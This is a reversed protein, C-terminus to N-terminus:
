LKMIANRFYDTERVLSVRLFPVGESATSRFFSKGAAVNVGLELWNKRIQDSSLDTNKFYVCAFIGAEPTNVTWKEDTNSRLFDLNEQCIKRVDLFYTLLQPANIIRSFVEVARLATYTDPQIVALAEDVEKALRENSSIIFGLKDGALNISKGTDWIGIWDCVDESIDFISPLTQPLHLGVLLFCHDVILIAESKGCAIALRELDESSAVIGLPNSPSDIIVVLQRNSRQRSQTELEKILCDVRNEAGNMIHRVGKILVDRNERSFREKLLIQWLDISPEPLIVTLGTKSSSQNRVYNGVAGFVRDLAISGSFTSRIQSKLKQPIRLLSVLGDQLLTKSSIYSVDGLFASKVGELVNSKLVEPLSIQAYGSNLDAAGSAQGEYQDKTLTGQPLFFEQRPRRFKRYIFETQGWLNYNRLEGVQEYGIHKYLSIARPNIDSVFLYINNADPFINEEMHLLMKKGYGQNRQEPNVCIYELLPEGEIGNDRTAVFGIFQSEVEAIYVKLGPDLLNALCQKETFFLENWPTSSAMLRACTEIESISVKPRINLNM